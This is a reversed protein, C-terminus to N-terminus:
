FIIHSKPRLSLYVSANDAKDTVLFDRVRPRM